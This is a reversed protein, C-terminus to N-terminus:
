DCALGVIPLPRLRDALRAPASAANRTTAVNDKAAQPWAGALFRDGSGGLTM